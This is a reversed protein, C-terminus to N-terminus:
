QGGGVKRKRAGVGPLDKYARSTLAPPPQFPALVGSGNPCPQPHKGDQESCDGSGNPCPARSLLAPKQKRNKPPKGKQVPFDKGPEWQLFEKTPRHCNQTPLETLRWLTSKGKGESGLTGLQTPVIFGHAQLQYFAKRATDQHASFDSAADRTSYFAEGNKKGDYGARRRLQWYICQALPTLSRFAPSDVTQHIMPTFAPMKTSRKNRAM